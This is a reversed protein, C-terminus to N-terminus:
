PSDGVDGRRCGVRPGNDDREFRRVRREEDCIVSVGNAIELGFASVSAAVGAGRVELVVLVRGAPRRRHDAGAGEHELLPHRAVVDREDLVGVVPVGRGAAGVEVLDGELRDGVRGCRRFASWDPSSSRAWVIAGTSTAVTLASGFRWTSRGRCRRCGRGAERHVLGVLREVVRLDALGDGVRDVALRQDVREEAPSPTTGSLQAGGPVWNAM